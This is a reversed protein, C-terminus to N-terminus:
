IWPHFGRNRKKYPKNSLGSVLLWQIPKLSFRCSVMTKVMLYLAKHNWWVLEIFYLGCACPEMMVQQRTDVWFAGRIELSWSPVARRVHRWRRCRITTFHRKKFQHTKKSTYAGTDDFAAVSFGRYIQSRLPFLMQFHHIKCQWTQNGSPICIQIIYIYICAFLHTTSLTEQLM